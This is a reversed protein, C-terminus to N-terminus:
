AAVADAAAIARELAAFCDPDLKTVFETRMIEFAKAVPMAARYPREATLADFVDACAVIRTELDIADGTLKRPYGSGDLKEHHAGAVRALDAFAAIRSLIEEGLISHRQMEVWEVDDLKGPKDLVQNSVGLKGIDHLLAARQLRRREDLGLGLQEAIM